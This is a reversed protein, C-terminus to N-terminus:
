KIHSHNFAEDALPVKQGKEPFSVFRTKVMIKWMAGWVCLMMKTQNPSM